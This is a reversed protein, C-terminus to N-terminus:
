VPVVKEASDADPILGRREVSEMVGLNMKIVNDALHFYRDDHTIAVVCKGRRKLEALLEEYFFQRFQPDQDAAWEDFLYFKKDELYSILLALRKRQGTSLELTSFRGDAIEVKKEMQLLKLYTEITEEKNTTDVGYLRKFLYFDSFVNSFYEGIEAHHLERGNLCISGSDAKYLGTLLKALTTKGSGNGGTIFTIEGTRFEHNIPGIKFIREESKYEFEVNHLALKQPNEVFPGWEQPEVKLESTTQILQNLRNWSIRIQVLEPIVVLLANVPGAMYLFVFVFTTLTATQINSFLVPFMFAVTGVVLVFLLEGVVYANAFKLAAQVNKARFNLNSQDLDAAFDIKRRKSLSLEKFGQVLDNIFDFFQNQIDRSQEWLKDAARGLLFYIGAAIGMIFVSLLLGYLNVVGLYAFCFLLTVLSTLANIAIDPLHSVLETDGKLVAYIEGRDIKEFRYFPTHLLNDMLLSRKDYVLDNTLDIMKNRILKQGAVYFVIGLAYYLLLGVDFQEVRKLAEIVAFIILANGFGSVFSLILLPFLPKENKHPFIMIGLMYVAFCGSVVMISSVAPLFSVPAWVEMFEWSMKQFLVEPIRYLCYAIYALFVAAVIVHAIHKRAFSSLTRRRKAFDAILKVILVAFTLSLASSVALIATGLRDLDKFMDEVLPQPKNGQIIDAIGNSIAGTYDSNLNAMVAIGIQEGPLLVLHSSFNPNAGAHLLKGGTQQYVMWGAAYSSGDDEPPVSRDPAHSEAILRTGAANGGGGLQLRLWIGMDAANTIFYGAPTNGRYMPANYAAAQLYGYKYGTAMDQPAAEQRYLVTHKLGFPELIRTRIYTEFPAGTVQQIVLGLVDYNITAYLYRDGPYFELPQGALKQVTRLLADEDDGPPIDKITQFPIGSTHHLLQELTIEPSTSIKKGTHEGEFNMKFWPLYKSVPDSLRLIGQEQLQLVALGTFAKSTSGLEFLTEGTVPRKTQLDAYGFGKQYLVNDKGAIVVSLGPIGGENMQSTIWREIEEVPLSRAAEQGLARGAGAPLWVLLLLCVALFPKLITIRKM